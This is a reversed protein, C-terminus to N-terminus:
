WPLFFAVSAEDAAPAGQVSCRCGGGGLQCPKSEFICCLGDCVKLATRNPTSPLAAAKGLAERPLRPPRDRGACRRYGSILWSSRQLGGESCPGTGASRAPREERPFYFLSPYFPPFPSPPHQSSSNLGGGGGGGGGGRWALRAGGGGAGGEPGDQPGLASASGRRAGGDGGQGSRPAPRLGPFPLHPPRHLSRNVCRRGQRPVAPGARRRVACGGGRAAAPSTALGRPM